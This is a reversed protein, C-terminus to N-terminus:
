HWIYFFQQAQIIIYLQVHLLGSRTQLCLYTKLICTAMEGSLIYQAKIFMLKKGYVIPVARSAIYEVFTDVVWQYETEIIDTM